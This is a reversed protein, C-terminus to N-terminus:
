GEKGELISICKFNASPPELGWAFQVKCDWVGVYRLTFYCTKLDTVKHTSCSTFLIDGNNIIHEARNGKEIKAKAAMSAPSLCFLLVLLTAVFTRMANIDGDARPQLLIVQLPFIWM